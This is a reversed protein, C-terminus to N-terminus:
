LRSSTPIDKIYIPIDFYMKTAKLLSDSEIYSEEIIGRLNYKGTIKKLRKGFATTYPKSFGEFNKQNKKDAILNYFTDLKIERENSFDFVFNKEEESPLFVRIASAEKKFFPSKMIVAGLVAEGVTITDKILQVEFYKSPTYLTDGEKNLYWIQNLYQKNDILKYERIFDIRGSEKFFKWKGNRLMKDTCVYGEGKIFDNKNYEVQKLCISDSYIRLFKIKKDQDDYFNFVTDSLKGKNFKAISKINGSEYYNKFTGDYIGEELEYYESKLSGNTYYERKINDCSFFLFVVVISIILKKM